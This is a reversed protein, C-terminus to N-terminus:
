KNLVTATSGALFEEIANQLNQIQAEEVTTISRNYGVATAKRLMSAVWGCQTIIKKLATSEEIGAFKLAQAATMSPTAIIKKIMTEGGQVIAMRFTDLDSASMIVKDKIKSVMADEVKRRLDGDEVKKILQAILRLYIFPLKHENAFHMSRKSLQLLILYDQISKHTMGLLDAIEKSSMENEAQIIAIAKAKDFASWNSHQEQIHFRTMIRETADMSDYVIAPVERLNLATAARYRREGDVVLYNNTGAIKEIALPVLIGQKRISAILRDLEEPDFEQRPQNPDAKLYKLPIIEIKNM